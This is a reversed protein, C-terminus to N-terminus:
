EKQSKYVKYTFANSSSALLSKGEIINPWIVINTVKDRLTNQLFKRYSTRYFELELLDMNGRYGPNLEKSCFLSVITHYNRSFSKFILLEWNGIVEKSIIM